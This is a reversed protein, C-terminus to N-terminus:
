LTILKAATTWQAVATAKYTNKAMQKEGGQYHTNLTKDFLKSM